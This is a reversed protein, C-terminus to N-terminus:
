RFISAFHSAFFPMGFLDSFFAESECQSAMPQTQPLGPHTRSPGPTGWSRDLVVGLASCLQNAFEKKPVQPSKPAKKRKKRNTKIEPRHKTSTPEIKSRNKRCCVKCCNTGSQKATSFGGPHVESASGLRASGPRALSPRASGLWAM